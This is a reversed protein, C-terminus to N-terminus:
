ESDGEAPLPPYIAEGVQIMFDWDAVAEILSARGLPDNVLAPDAEVYAIFRPGILDHTARSAEVWDRAPQPVTVCATLSLALLLPTM